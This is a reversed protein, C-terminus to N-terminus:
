QLMMAPIMGNVHVVRTHYVPSTVQHDPSLVQTWAERLEEGLFGPEALQAPIM